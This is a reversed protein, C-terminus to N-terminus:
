TALYSKPSGLCHDDFVFDFFRWVGTTKIRLDRRRTDLKNVVVLLGLDSDKDPKGYAYSGFLIIKLPNAVERDEESAEKLLQDDVEKIKILKM